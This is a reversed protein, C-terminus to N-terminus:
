AAIPLQYLGGCHSKWRFRGLDARHRTKDGSIESPTVGALATHARQSNYYQHFHALKRELDNTNWFLLQDLYERRLTGILREVFPHSLPTYPVTNIEDIVLIRLNAQWQSYLFLTIQALINQFVRPQFPQTSCGVCPLVM